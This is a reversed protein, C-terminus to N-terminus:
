FLKVFCAGFFPPFCAVILALRVFHSSLPRPESVEVNLSNLRCASTNSCTGPKKQNRKRKLTVAEKTSLFTRKLVDFKLLTYFFFWAVDPFDGVGNKLTVHSFVNVINVAGSRYNM